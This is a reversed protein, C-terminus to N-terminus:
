SRAPLGAALEDARQEDAPMTFTDSRRIAMVCSVGREELWSRLWKAQGYVEDATFWGFPVGAELTRSAMAQALQPKTAFEV